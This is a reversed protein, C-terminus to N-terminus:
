LQITELANYLCLIRMEKENDFGKKLVMRELMMEFKQSKPNDLGHWFNQKWQDKLFLTRFIGSVSFFSAEDTDTMSNFLMSVPM